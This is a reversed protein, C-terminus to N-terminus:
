KLSRRIISVGGLFMILSLVQGMTLFSFVFGLQSDSQRYFELFFRILSYGSLYLSSILGIKRSLKNRLSWLIVFLMLGEGLAEFIQSPFRLLGDGFNMGIKSNTVRGYLEGNLFNGVRGFFYGAPLAPLIWDTMRWLNIKRKKCFIYATLIFGVVAGHYSMGYIGTFEGASNFPFFIERPNNLFYSFNYIIVYGFRGGVIAGIFSILLFDFTKEWAIFSEKRKTRWYLLSAVVLFGVLYMMSYWYFSFFGVSFVIPNIESPFNQYWSLM